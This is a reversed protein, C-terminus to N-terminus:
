VYVRHYRHIGILLLLMAPLSSFIAILYYVRFEVQGIRSIEDGGGGGVVM